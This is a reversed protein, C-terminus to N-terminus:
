RWSHLLMRRNFGDESMMGGTALPAYLVSISGALLLAGLVWGPRRQGLSAVVGALVILAFAYAPLYHYMYSDRNSVIWPLIMSAYGALLPAGALFFARARSRPVLILVATVLVAASSTWWLLPNGMSSIARLAGNPLREFYMMIPHYLFPWTYWHSTAPHQWTNSNLQNRLFGLNHELIAAPGYAEHTLRLGVAFLGTYVALVLPMLWIAEALRSRARLFVLLPLVAFLGSWKISAACGLIVACAALSRRTRATASLLFAGLVFSTLMEDLVACRSYTIFFGDIAVFTAALIGALRSRFTVVAIGSALAINALGFALPVLRWGVPDDGWGLIGIAVLFKGFPPHDNWDAKGQIYNVANHVFHPEDWFLTAPRSLRVFRYYIGLGSLVACAVWTLPLAWRTALLGVAGRPQTTSVQPRGDVAYESEM